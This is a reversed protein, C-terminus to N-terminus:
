SGPAPLRARIYDALRDETLGFRKLADPASRALYNGADAIWQDRVEIKSLDHGLELLRNRAFTVARAAITDLYTRVADEAKLRLLKAVWGIVAAVGAGLVSVVLGVVYDITPTLDIVAGDGAFAVPAVVLLLLVLAAWIALPRLSIM